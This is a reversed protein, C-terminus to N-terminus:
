KLTRMLETRALEYTAALFGPNETRAGEIARAINAAFDDDSPSFFKACDEDLKLAARIASKLEHDGANPHARRLRLFTPGDEATARDAGAKTLAAAVSQAVAAPDKLNASRVSRAAAPRERRDLAFRRVWLFYAADPLPLSAAAAIDQDISVGEEKRHRVQLRDSRSSGASRSNKDDNTV